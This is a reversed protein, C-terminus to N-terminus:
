EVIRGAPIDFTLIVFSCMQIVMTTRWMNFLTFFSSSSSFFFSFTENEELGISYTYAQVCERERERARAYICEKTYSLCRRFQLYLRDWGEEEEKEREGGM